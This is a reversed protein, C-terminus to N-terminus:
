TSQPSLCKCLKVIETLSSFPSKNSKFPKGKSHSSSILQYYIYICHGRQFHQWTCPRFFEIRLQRRVVKPKRSNTVNFFLNKLFDFVISFDGLFVFFSLAGRVVGDPEKEAAREVVPTAKLRVPGPIM